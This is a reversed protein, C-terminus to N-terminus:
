FPDTNSIRLFSRTPASAPGSDEPDLRFVARASLNVGFVVGLVRPQVQRPASNTTENKM